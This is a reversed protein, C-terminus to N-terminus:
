WVREEDVDEYGVEVGKRKSLKFFTVYRSTSLSQKGIGPWPRGRSHVQWRKVLEAELNDPFLFAIGSTMSFAELAIQRIFLLYDSSMHQSFNIDMLTITRDEDILDVLGLSYTERSKYEIRFLSTSSVEMAALLERETETEGGVEERYREVANKGQEKYEYIVYDMLVSMDGESDFIMTDGRGLMGLAKGSHQLAKKDVMEDMIKHHLKKGAVRYRRYVSVRPVDSRSTRRISKWLRDLM